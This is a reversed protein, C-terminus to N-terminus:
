EQTESTTISGCGIVKNKGQTADARAAHSSVSLNLWSILPKIMAARKTSLTPRQMRVLPTGIVLRDTPITMPYLAPTKPRSLGSMSKADTFSGEGSALRAGARMTSPAGTVICPTTLLAPVVIGGRADVSGGLICNMGPGPM